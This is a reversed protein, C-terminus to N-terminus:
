AIDRWCHPGLHCPPPWVAGQGSGRDRGTQEDLEILMHQTASQWGRKTREASGNKPVSVHDVYHFTLDVRLRRGDRFREGWAVLQAEVTAWEVNLGESQKTLKREACDNVSVM